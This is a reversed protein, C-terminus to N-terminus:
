DLSQVERIIRSEERVVSEGEKLSWYFSKDRAGKKVKQIIMQNWEQHDMQEKRM